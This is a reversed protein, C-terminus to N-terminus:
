QTKQMGRVYEVAALGAIGGEHVAKCVQLLGGNANGCSFVGPANTAM